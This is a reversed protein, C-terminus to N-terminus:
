LTGATPFSPWISPTIHVAPFALFIPITVATDEGEWGSKWKSVTYTSEVPGLSVLYRPCRVYLDVRDLGRSRKSGHTGNTILLGWSSDMSVGGTCYRYQNEFGQPSHGWQTPIALMTQVSAMARERGGASRAAHCYRHGPHQCHSCACPPFSSVACLPIHDGEM